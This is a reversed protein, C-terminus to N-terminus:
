CFMAHLVQLTTRYLTKFILYVQLANKWSLKNIKTILQKVTLMPKFSKQKLFRVSTSVIFQESMRFGKMSYERGNVAVADRWM